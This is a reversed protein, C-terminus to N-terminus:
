AAVPAVFGGSASSRSMSWRRAPKILARTESGSQTSEVCIIVLDGVMVKRECGNLSYRGLRRAVKIMYTSFREGTRLM